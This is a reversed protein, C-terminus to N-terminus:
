AGRADEPFFANMSIEEDSLGSGEDSTEERASLFYRFREAEILSRSIRHEPGLGHRACCHTREIDGHLLTKGMNELTYWEKKRKQM